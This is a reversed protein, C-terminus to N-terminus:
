RSINKSINTLLQYEVDLGYHKAINFCVLIIDALEHGYDGDGHLFADVFEQVEEELKMVFERDTTKNNILGRNRTVRYNLEIINKM